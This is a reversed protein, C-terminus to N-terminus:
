EYVGTLHLHQNWRSVTKRFGVHMFVEVHPLRQTFGKHQSRM